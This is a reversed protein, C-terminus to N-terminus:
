VVRGIPSFFSFILFCTQVLLVFNLFPQEHYPKDIFTDFPFFRDVRVLFLFRTVKEAISLYLCQNLMREYM